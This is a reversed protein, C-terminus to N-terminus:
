TLGATTCTSRPRFSLLLFVYRSLRSAGLLGLIRWGLFAAVFACLVSLIRGAVVLDLHTVGSFLRALLQYLPFEM